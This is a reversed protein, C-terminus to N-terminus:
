PSRIGYYMEAIAKVVEEDVIEADGIFIWPMGTLKILQDIMENIKSREEPFPTEKSIMLMAKGAPVLTWTAM